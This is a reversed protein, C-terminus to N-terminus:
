SPSVGPMMFLNRRPKQNLIDSATNPLALHDSVVVVLTNELSEASLLYDIFESLLQDSCHVADLIPNDNLGPNDDSTYPIDQCSRSVHGRPHHTDLTLLTLAFPDPESALADLQAKAMALLSDDYLGWQNLYGPDDLQPALEDRGIVNPM